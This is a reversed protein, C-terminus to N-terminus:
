VIYFVACLQLDDELEAKILCIDVILCQLILHDSSVGIQYFFITCSQIHVVQKNGMTLHIQDVKITFRNVENIKLM